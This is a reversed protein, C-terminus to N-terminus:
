RAEAEVIQWGAAGRQLRFTWRRSQSIPERDGVKPVYHARGHCAATADPGDVNLECAEFAIGQSELNAFARALARRDVTPWVRSAAGADLRNYAEVYEALVQGIAAEDEAAPDGLSAPAADPAPPAVPEPGAMAELHEAAPVMTPAAAPALGADAPALAIPQLPEPAAPSAEVTSTATQISRPSAQVEVEEGGTAVPAADVAAPAEPRPRSHQEPQRAPVLHSEDSEPARWWALAALAVVAVLVAVWHSWRRSPAGAGPDELLLLPLDAPEFQSSRLQDLLTKAELNGPDLRCAEELREEAEAVRGEEVAIRAASVCTAARRLRMRQEFHGRPVDPPTM